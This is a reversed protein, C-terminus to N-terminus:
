SASPATDLFANLTCALYFRVCLVYHDVGQKVPHGDGKWATVNSSFRGTAELDRLSDPNLDPLPELYEELSTAAEPDHEVAASALQRIVAASGATNRDLSQLEKFTAFAAKVEGM